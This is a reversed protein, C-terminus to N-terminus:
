YGEAVCNETARIEGESANAPDAPVVVGSRSYAAGVVAARV